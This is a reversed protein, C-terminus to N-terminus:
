HPKNELLREIKLIDEEPLKKPSDNSHQAVYIDYLADLTMLDINEESEISIQEQRKYNIQDCQEKTVLDSLQVIYKKVLKQDKDTSSGIDTIRLIKDHFSAPLIKEFHFNTTELTKFLQAKAIFSHYDSQTLPEKKAIILKLSVSYSFFMFSVILLGRLTGFVLGLLRNVISHNLNSVLKYIISNVLAFCLLLAVLLLSNGAIIVITKSNTYIALIAEVSPFFKYTLIIAAVWGLFSVASKILGRYFGYISSVSILLIITYDLFKLASFDIM